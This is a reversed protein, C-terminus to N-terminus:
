MFLAFIADFLDPLLVFGQELQAVQDSPPSFSTIHVERVCDWYLPLAGWGLVGLGDLGLPSVM